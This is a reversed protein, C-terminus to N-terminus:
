AELFAAIRRRLGASDLGHAALHQQPTGYHRNEQRRIGLYLQRAPKGDLARTVEAASTGELYPEVVVLRGGAISDVLTPGDFPLVTNAYLVTLDMGDVAELVPRLMPGVALVTAAANERRRVVRIAGSADGFAQANAAESLRIYLRDTRAAAERLLMEVEDAHGPVHVTWGPLTGILAVDEPAQHTRGAGAADVSAGVSVLVAGVDQHGLDLRVHEYPRQVLFPAYTHVIPRYGELALGAAVGVLLQERIGVNIVRLPHRRRAGAEEFLGVGIDALVVAVRPNNDLLDTAVSVFRERM